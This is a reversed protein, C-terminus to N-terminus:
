AAAPLAPARAALLFDRVLAATQAPREVQPVHGCGPLVLQEAGPLWEAVHRSFGPDIVRDLEGWLFLAPAELDALRPYFGRPGFPADLYLNRAAALFAARAGASRYTRHFAEAAAELLAPDVAAPDAFMARLQGEVLPRALGHPLMGLEPRVLRVVPHFVRRVFAVAPCLLGLRRVRGPHRLAVEVAVRGGMSNGVLHARAIGLADMAERVTEAFYRATYPALLPKSSAGFGPLDVAHVRFRTALAAAIPLFSTKAGGLGHLLLVDPGAGTTLVSLRRGPLAVEHVRSRPARGGPLAFRGEFSAALDLDGRVALRGESFARLGSIRGRRLALLTTADLTLTVDPPATAPGPLVEVGEATTRVIWSRRLDRVDFLWTARPRTPGGLHLAPLAAFAREVAALRRPHSRSGPV